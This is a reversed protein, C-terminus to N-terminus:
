NGKEVANFFVINEKVIHVNRRNSKKMITGYTTKFVFPTISILKMARPHKERILYQASAFIHIAYDPNVDYFCFIILLM